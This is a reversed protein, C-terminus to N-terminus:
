ATQQILTLTTNMDSFIVGGSVTSAVYLQIFDNATLLIHGFGTLEGPDTTSSPSRAMPHRTSFTGGNVRYKASLKTATSPWGVITSWLDIKYYGTVPATLRNTTFTVGGVLNESAWPAGTGTLLMYDTNTNLTADAAATVAFANTNGTIAMTGFAANTRYVFGNTGDTVLKLNSSGGDGALGQLNNSTLKKWTGSGAGDAAYVQNTSATSAGKPEHRQADPIDKHQVTM